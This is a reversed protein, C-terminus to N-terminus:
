SISIHLQCDCFMQNESQDRVEEEHGLVLVVLLTNFSKCLSTTLVLIVDDSDVFVLAFNNWEKMFKKKFMDLLSIKWSAMESVNAWLKDSTLIQLM